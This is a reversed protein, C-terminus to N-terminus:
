KEEVELTWGDFPPAIKNLAEERLVRRKDEGDELEVDFDFRLIATAKVLQTRHKM